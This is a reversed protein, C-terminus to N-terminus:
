KSDLTDWFEEHSITKRGNKIWENEAEEARLALIMDEYEELCNEIMMRAIASMSSNKKKSLLELAEMDSESLTIHLRPNKAPM